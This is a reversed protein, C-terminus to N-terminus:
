FGLFEKIKNVPVASVTGDSELYSLGVLEGAINFLSSGNVVSKESINTEIINQDFNRIIGENALFSGSKTTLAGTFFVRQGLKIKNFDSFGVTPLNSKEIKILALNNKSDKKQVKFNVKEGNLFVNFSSSAPTLSALTLVLGDTTVILGSGSYLAGGSGTGQIAVISRSARLIAEELAVNEQIRIEEKPNVIIKGSKFDKVFQFREFYPNTLLYPLVFVNFLLAGFAGLSLIGIAKLTKKFKM